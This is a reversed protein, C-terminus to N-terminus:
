AQVWIAGQDRAAAVYESLQSRSLIEARELHARYWAATKELAEELTWVPSWKLYSRAKSTDLYLLGAEHPHEEQSPRWNFDPWYRNMAGLVERVTRNDGVEPGFNWPAAAGGDRGLLHQGVLLYGSLCELVHQWPRTADPYRIEVAEGRATARVIDPILRDESWDGGGVVNGARASAILPGMEKSFFSSRYSALLLEVAAKSASYPDHGGLRDIERYGWPWERNEYVKDTTVVITARLDKLKRSAELLNATGIVNTSWTELPDRYSRRVLPQAALHFIVQPNVATVADALERSDRIDIRLDEVPLRLSDWHNPSTEPALGLGTVQAGLDHLWLALWSGKFGTHGTVLVRRGKYVERFLTMGVSELAGKRRDM